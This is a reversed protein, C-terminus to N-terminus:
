PIRERLPTHCRTADGPVLETMKFRLVLAHRSYHGSADRLSSHGQSWKGLIRPDQNATHKKKKELLLRCVLNCPSQLESTHEESRTSPVYLRTNHQSMGNGLSPCSVSAKM